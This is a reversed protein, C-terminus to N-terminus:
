LFKNEEETNGEGGQKHQPQQQRSDDKDRELQRVPTQGYLM